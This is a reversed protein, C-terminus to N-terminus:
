PVLMISTFVGGCSPHAYLYVFIFDGAVNRDFVFCEMGVVKLGPSVRDFVM